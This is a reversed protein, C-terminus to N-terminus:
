CWMPFCRSSSASAAAATRRFRLRMKPGPVRLAQAMVPHTSFPGQFNAMCDYSGDAPNHTAVAVFCEMPTFSLRHFAVTLKVIKDAKDFAGKTDGYQFKRVSIENTKAEEHLMPSGQKCAELPDIVAQRPAYEINVLEAADEAIYRSEAVVLAVPEGVFRVRGVALSWQHIPSKLAM